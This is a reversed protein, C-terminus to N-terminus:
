SHFGPGLIMNVSTGETYIRITEYSESHQELLYM